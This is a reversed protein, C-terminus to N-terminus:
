SEKATVAFDALFRAREKARCPPSVAMKIAQSQHNAVADWLKAAEVKAWKVHQSLRLERAYVEVRQMRRQAVQTQILDLRKAAKSTFESGWLILDLRKAGKSSSSLAGCRPVDRPGNTHPARAQESHEYKMFDGRFSM